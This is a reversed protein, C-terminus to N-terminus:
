IIDIELPFNESQQICLSTWLFMGDEILYPTESKGSHVILSGLPFYIHPIFMDTNYSFWLM